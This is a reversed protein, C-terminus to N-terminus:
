TNCLQALQVKDSGLDLKSFKVGIKMSYAGLGIGCGSFDLEIEM